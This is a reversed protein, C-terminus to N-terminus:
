RTPQVSQSEQQSNPNASTLLSVVVMALLSAILGAGIPPIVSSLGDVVAFLITVGVGGVMGAIAGAANARQWFRGLFLPFLLGASTLSYGMLLADLVSPIYLGILIGIVGIAVICRKSFRLVDDDTAQPRFISQYFDRTISASVSHLASDATSVIAAIIAALVLISVAGPLVEVVAWMMAQEGDEIGPNLTYIAMGLLSAWLGALVSAIALNYLGQNAVKDSKAAYIRQHYTQLVMQGPLVALIWGWVVADGAGFLSLHAEPVTNFVTEFGGAASVVLPLLIVLAFLMLGLQAVDTYAVAIIGGTMTYIIVVVAAIVIGWELPLGTLLNMIKGAAIPQSVWWGFTVLSAVVSTIARLRKSEGYQHCMWDTTTYFNQQRLWRAAFLALLMVGVPIALGTYAFESFGWQYGIGVHAIMMGGGFASAIQTATVTLLGFKSGGVYFDAATKQKRSAWCGVAIMAVFFLGIVSLLVWNLEM